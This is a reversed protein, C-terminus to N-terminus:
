FPLDLMMAHIHRPNVDPPYTATAEICAILGDEGGCLQESLHVGTLGGFLSDLDTLLEGEASEEQYFYGLTHDFGYSVTVEGDAKQKQFWYRSM